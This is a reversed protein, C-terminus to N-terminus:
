QSLLPEALKKIPLEEKKDITPETEESPEQIIDKPVSPLEDVIKDLTQDVVPEQKPKTLEDLEKLLEDDDLRESSRLIIDSIEQQKEAAEQNEDMMKQIDDINMLSTLQKLAENGTKLGEVVSVEAQTFEIDSVLQELTELQKDTRGIIEEMCKRRKLVILAREKLGKKFLDLALQKNRELESETKKQYIRIKDRQQKLQLIAKDQATVVPTRRRIGFLNGM